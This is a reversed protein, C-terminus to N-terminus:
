TVRRRRLRGPWWASDVGREGELPHIGGSASWRHREELLKLAKLTLVPAHTVQEVLHRGKQFAARSVSLARPLTTSGSWGFM